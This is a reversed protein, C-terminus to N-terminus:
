CVFKEPENLIVQGGISLSRVLGKSKILHTTLIGGPQAINLVQDIEEANRAHWLALAACGSGCSSESVFSDTSRVWVLPQGFIKQSDYFLIGCADPRHDWATEKVKQLLKFALATDFPLNEAIIHCIGDFVYMPFIRGNLEITGAALPAPIEIEAYGSLTDIHVDLPQQAGSVKLTLVSKGSLGTKRAVLLGFSRSANGCFESGMMELTWLGGPEEPPLVFGVQEANLAPAALLARAATTRKEVSEPPNLVFITINGAPDARIIELEMHEIIICISGTAFGAYKTIEETIGQIFLPIM